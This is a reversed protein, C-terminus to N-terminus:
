VLHAMLDMEATLEEYDLLDLSERKDKKQFMALNERPVLLDSSVLTELLDM